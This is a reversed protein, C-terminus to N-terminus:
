IEDFLETQDEDDFEDPRTPQGTTPEDYRLADHFSSDFYDDAYEGMM